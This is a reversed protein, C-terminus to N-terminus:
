ATSIGFNETRPRPVINRPRDAEAPASHDALLENMWRQQTQWNVMVAPSRVPQGTVSSVKDRQSFNIAFLLVWVTALGTWIRRSPLILESWLKNPCRLCWSVFHITAATQSRRQSADDTANRRYVAAVSAQRIADLRPETSRHRALLIERPTKM